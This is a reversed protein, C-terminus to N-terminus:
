VATLSFIFKTVGDSSTVFIDENHKDLITKVIYLGLGVGERDTSRSKDIKHFRQFIYPLEDAPITEGTNAISIFVRQEQQWLELTITGGRSSYKVANDLLNYVVQTISDENGRTIIPEEPLEAEINLQKKEIKGSLSLLALRVVESIDFSDELMAASSAEGLMSIDMMSKVLRSLRKTESSIVGLYRDENERNITGDLLGEAFGSIVTMPTKLEHSVNAIFDRRLKENNQISDAMYNFAELLQAIEDKRDPMEEVRVDLEGRAFRRAASAIEGIPETQKKSAIFSIAFALSMVTVALLIYATSFNRWERGSVAADGTVFLYGYPRTEGSIRTVLPMGAIQRRVPYMKGLTSMVVPREGADAERLIDLPVTGGLNVNAHESCAQVVGDTDTLLVDLGTIRSVLTLPVSINLDNLPTGDNLHLTAVYRATENLASIMAERREAMTRRYSLITSLAGLVSFSIFVILAMAIFIKFYTSNRM